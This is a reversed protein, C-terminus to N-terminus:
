SRGRNRALVRKQAATPKFPLIRKLANRVKDDRVQMAIGRHKKDALKQRAIALQYYFFEEFIMRIQAPSRYNNLLEISTDRPPFHTHMLADRRTPFRLARSHRAPLADPIEGSFNELVSYIIRRLMRSTVGGLSEYIPVIRGM